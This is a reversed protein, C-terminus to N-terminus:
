VGQMAWSFAAEEPCGGGDDEWWILHSVQGYTERAQWAAWLCNVLKCGSAAKHVGKCFGELYVIVFIVIIVIFPTIVLPCCHRHHHHSSHGPLDECCDTCEARNNCPGKRHSGQPDQGRVGLSAMQMSASAESKVAACEWVTGAWVKRLWRCGLRDAIEM